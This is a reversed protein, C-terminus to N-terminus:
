GGSRPQVCFPPFRALDRDPKTIRRFGWTDVGPQDVETFVRAAM